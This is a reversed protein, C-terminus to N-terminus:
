GQTGALAARTHNGHLALLGFGVESEGKGEVSGSVAGTGAWSIGVHKTQCQRHWKDRAERYIMRRSSLPAVFTTTPTLSPGSSPPSRSRFDIVKAVLTSNMLHRQV